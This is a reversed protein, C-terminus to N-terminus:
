FEWGFGVQANLNNRAQSVHMNPLYTVAEGKLSFNRLIFIRLGGGLIASPSKTEIERDPVGQTTGTQKRNYQAAGLKVYPQLPWSRPTLGQVVSLGLNQERVSLTQTPNNNFFSESSAFSLEIETTATINVGLAATYRRTVSVADDGYQTRSYSGMASLEGHLGGKDKPEPKIDPAPGASAPKGLWVSFFVAVIFFVRVAFKL